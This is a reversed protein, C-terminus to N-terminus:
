ETTTPVPRSATWSCPRRGLGPRQAMSDELAFRSVRNQGDGGAFAHLERIHRASESARIWPSDWSGAKEGSSSTSGAWRQWTVLSSTRSCSGGERETVLLRGDPLFRMEWPVSLGEVVTAARLAAVVSSSTSSSATTSATTSSATTSGQEGSGCALALLMLAGLAAGGLWTVVLTRYGMV